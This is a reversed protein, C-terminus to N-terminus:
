AGLQHKETPPTREALAATPPHTMGFGTSYFVRQRHLYDHSAGAGDTVRQFWLPGRVSLSLHKALIIQTMDVRHASTNSGIGNARRLAPDAATSAVPTDAM